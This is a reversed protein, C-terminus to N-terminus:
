SVAYIHICHKSCTTESMNQSPLECLLKLVANWKRSTKRLSNIGEIVQIEVEPTLYCQFSSSLIRRDLREPNVDEAM